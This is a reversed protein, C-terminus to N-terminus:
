HCCTQSATPEISKSLPSDPAVSFKIRVTQATLVEIFGPLGTILSAWVKNGSDVSSAIAFSQSILFRASPSSLAPAIVGSLSQAEIQKDALDQIAKEGRHYVDNNNRSRAM